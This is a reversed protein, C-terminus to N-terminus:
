SFTVRMRDDNAKVRSCWVSVPGERTKALSFQRSKIGKCIPRCYPSSLYSNSTKWWFIPSNYDIVKNISNFLGLM